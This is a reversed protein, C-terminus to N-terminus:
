GCFGSRKGGHPLYLQSSRRESLLYVLLSLRLDLRRGVPSVGSGRVEVLSVRSGPSM